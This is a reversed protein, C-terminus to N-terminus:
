KGQLDLVAGDDDRRCEGSTDAERGGSQRQATHEVLSWGSHSLSRLRAPRLHYGASCIHRTLNFGARGRPIGRASAHVGLAISEPQVLM